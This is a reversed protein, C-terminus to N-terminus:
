SRLVICPGGAARIRGCLANAEPRTQAPVRVRYFVRAGRNRLRMGIVMPAAEGLIAAYRSRSRGFAALANAKSFAGALQVGWPATAAELLLSGARFSRLAATVALCTTPEPPSGAAAAPATDGPPLSAPVARARAAAAEAAWDEASRGTIRVVYDRTEDPLGGRGDLWTQVRTPGGNYADAALGLNGLRRAHDRLLAAAAPIAQEPDFPDALGRERATGPMFQAVGRAGAPSTVGPRFSSERWLLRTLFPAPLNEASAAADVLRCLAGELSEGGGTADAGLARLPLVALGLGLLLVVKLRRNAFIAEANLGAGRPAPHPQAPGSSPPRSLSRVQSGKWTM